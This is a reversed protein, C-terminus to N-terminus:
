FSPSLVMGEIESTIGEVDDEPLKLPKKTGAIGVYVWRWYNTRTM